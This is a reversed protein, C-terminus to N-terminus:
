GADRVVRLRHAGGLASRLRDRVADSEQVYEQTQRVDSHGLLEALEFADLGGRAARTAFGRRVAYPSRGAIGLQEAARSMASWWSGSVVPDGAANTFVLVSRCPKGDAHPVGCGAKVDRGELRRRIIRVADETLPVPRSDRDKPYRRIIRRKLVYVMGVSVWGRALDVADAHLGTLEGPRLGTDLGVDNIDRYCEKLLPRVATLFEEDVYAKRKKGIKPLKVGVCPSASLVPPESELALNMARRFEAFIRHVYSPERDPTLDAVWAKVDRQGIKNLAIDGWKPILYNDAVRQAVDATDSAGPKPAATEWWERFTVTASITGKVAAAQRRAKVEAEQAAELADRKRGYPHEPFDPRRTRQKVGDPDRWCGRHRGSPLRETWAM